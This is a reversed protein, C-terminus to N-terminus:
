NYGKARCVTEESVIYHANESDKMLSLVPPKLLCYLVLSEKGEVAVSDHLCAQFVLCATTDCAPTPTETALWWTTPCWKDQRQDRPRQTTPTLRLPHCFISFPFNRHSTCDNNILHSSCLLSILAPLPPPLLCSSCGWMLGKWQLVGAPVLVRHKSIPTGARVLSNLPFNMYPVIVWNKFSKILLDLIFVDKRVTCVSLTYGDLSM